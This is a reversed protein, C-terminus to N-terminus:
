AADTSPRNACAAVEELTDQVSVRLQTARTAIGQAINQLLMWHTVQLSTSALTDIEAQAERALWVIEGVLSAPNTDEVERIELKMM